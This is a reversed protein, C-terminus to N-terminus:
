LLLLLLLFFFYDNDELFNEKGVSDLVTEDNENRRNGQLRKVDDDADRGNDGHSHCRHRRENEDDVGDGIM